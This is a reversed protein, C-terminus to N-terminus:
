NQPDTIMDEIDEPLNEIFQRRNAWSLWQKSASVLKEKGNKSIRVVDPSHLMKFDNLKSLVVKRRKGGKGYFESLIRAKGDIMCFAHRRNMDELTVVRKDTTTTTNKSNGDGGNHRESKEVPKRLIEPEKKYGRAMERTIRAYM